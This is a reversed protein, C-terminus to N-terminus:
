VRVIDALRQYGGKLPHIGDATLEADLNVANSPDRLHKDFDFYGAAGGPLYRMWNNMAVRQAEPTTTLGRPMVAALFIRETGYGRLKNFITMMYGEFVAASVGNFADNGGLAIIATDPPNGTFDIRDWWPQLNTFGPGLAWQISQSGGLGINSWLFGDRIAAGGIWNEHPWVGYGTQNPAAGATASSGIGVVYPTEAPVLADYELIIDLAGYTGGMLTQGGSATLAATQSAKAAAGTGKLTLGRTNDYYLTGIGTAGMSWQYTLGRRFQLTSDTVWSSVAELGDAAVTFSSLAQVPTATFTGVWTSGDSPFSPRGLWVGSITMGSLIPTADGPTWNRVRMRWRSTTVPLALLGRQAFEGWDTATSQGSAGAIPLRATKTVLDSGSSGGVVYISV